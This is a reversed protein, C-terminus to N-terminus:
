RVGAQALKQRRREAFFASIDSTEVARKEAADGALVSAPKDGLTTPPRPASTVTPTTTPAPAAGGALAEIRGLARFLQAPMLRALSPLTDPHDAFYQLVAKPHESQMAFDAVVNLPGVKEGEALMFSPRLERVEPPLTQVFAGDVEQQYKTVVSVIAQEREVSERQAAEQARFQKVEQRAEWRGTARMWASYPDAAYRPDAEFDALQPEPDSPDVAPATQVPSAPAVPAAPAAQQRLAALEREVALRANQEAIRGDRERARDDLLKYIQRATKEKVGELDPTTPADGAPADGAPADSTPAPASEAASPTITLGAANAKEVRRADLFTAVDNSKVAADIVPNFPEAPAPAPTSPSPALPTADTSM